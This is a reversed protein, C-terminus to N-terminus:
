EVVWVTVGQGKRVLEEGVHHQFLRKLGTFSHRGVVVTGYDGESATQLIDRAVRKPDLPEEFKVVLSNVDIGKEVLSQQMKHLMARGKELAEEEMKQYAEAREASVKDEVAQDESGGWELMRPPLRLHVLGVHFAPNGAITDILYQLAGLSAESGDAALLIRKNSM